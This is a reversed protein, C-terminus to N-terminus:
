QRAAANPPTLEDIFLRTYSVRGNAEEKAGLELRGVLEWLGPRFSLVKDAYDAPLHVFLTSGPLDDSPGDEKEPINVAVPALLFLGPIPEEEHVMYGAIRVRKHELALLKRSPELGQPGVPMKYFDQFKLEATPAAAQAPPPPSRHACGSLLSLACLAPVLAAPYPIRSLKM